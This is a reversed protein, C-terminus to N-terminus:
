NVNPQNTDQLCKSLYEMIETSFDRIDAYQFKLWSEVDELFIKNAEERTHCLRSPNLVLSTANSDEDIEGTEKNFSHIYILTDGGRLKALRVKGQSPFRPKRHPYLCNLEEESHEIHWFIANDKVEELTAM